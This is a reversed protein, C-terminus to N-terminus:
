KADVKKQMHQDEGYNVYMNRSQFISPCQPYVYPTLDHKGNQFFVFSVEEHHVRPLLPSILRNALEKVNLRM